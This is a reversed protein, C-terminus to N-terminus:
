PLFVIPADLTLETQQAPVSSVVPLGGCQQCRSAVLIQRCSPCSSHSGLWTDICVVHFGHGCQPLVRVEEGASFEMLCIACDSFKAAYDTTYTVKPISRLVKKKLGKNATATSSTNPPLGSIRRIWACRAVAALGLVCILACMLAALIVIFDSYQNGNPVDNPSSNSSDM